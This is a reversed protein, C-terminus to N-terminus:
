HSSELGGFYFRIGVFVTCFHFAEAVARVEITGSFGVFQTSMHSKRHNRWVAGARKDALYQYEREQSLITSECVVGCAVACEGILVKVM